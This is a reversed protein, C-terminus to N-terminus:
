FILYKYYFYCNPQTGKNFQNCHKFFSSDKTNRCVYECRTVFPRSHYPFSQIRALVRNRLCTKKLKAAMHHYLTIFIIIQLQVKSFYYTYLKRLVFRWDVEAYRKRGRGSDDLDRKMCVGQPVKRLKRRQQIRKLYVM